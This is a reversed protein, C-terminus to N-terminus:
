GRVSLIFIRTLMKRTDEDTIFELKKEYEEILSNLLNEYREKDKENANKVYIFGKEIRTSLDLFEQIM